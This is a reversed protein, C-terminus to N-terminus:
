LMYAWSLFKPEPTAFREAAGSGLLLKRNIDQLLRHNSYEVMFKDVDEVDKVADDINCGCEEIGLVGSACVNTFSVVIFDGRVWPANVNPPRAQKQGCEIMSVLVLGVNGHHITPTMAMNLYDYDKLDPSLTAVNEFVVFDGFEHNIDAPSLRLPVLRPADAVPYFRVNFSM